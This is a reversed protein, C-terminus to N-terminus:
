IDCLGLLQELEKFEDARGTRPAGANIWLALASLENQSLAGGSLPMPNGSISFSGPNTKAAVKRYLYSSDADGPEVWNLASSSAKVGVINDYAVSNSLNLGGRASGASHCGGATCGRGNFIESRIAGFSTAPADPCEPAFKAVLPLATKFWFQLVIDGPVDFACEATSTPCGEWSVFEHGPRPVASYTEIYDGLAIAKCPLNERLCDNDGSASLIDGEGLIDLPHTCSSLSAVLAIALLKVNMSYVEAAVAPHYPKSERPEFLNQFNGSIRVGGTASVVAWM